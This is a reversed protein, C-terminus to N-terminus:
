EYCGGPNDVTWVGESSIVVGDTCKMYFTHHWYDGQTEHTHEIFMSGILLAAVFVLLDNM